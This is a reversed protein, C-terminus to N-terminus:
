ELTAPVPFEAMNPLRLGLWKSFIAATAQPTVTERRVGGSIGPGYVLLPVHTDYNYPTGHTTGTKFRDLPICYPKLLVYVDGSRETNFSRQVRSGIIDNAPFGAKLEARTYAHNVHPHKSLFEATAQAVEERSKGFASLVKPNFYIWPFSTADKDAMAEIWRPKKQGEKAATSSGLRATLHDEIAEQLAKVNVREAGRIGREKSVEVLPCVGHDATVAMIYEGKGVHSDLFGLLEAIVADSHLTVDLVEPSDPGWTHGILDNSSFSVVLLDPVEHKGLKEATACTRAIELMLDNGASSNALKEYYEKGPKAKGGTNSYRFALDQSGAATSKRMESVVPDLWDFYNIDPRCPVWDKGFWKNAGQLNGEDTSKNFAEVWSFTAAEPYYSSTVLHGDFWYAGSPNKGVPLIASRDKLSLGFVKSASSRSRLVDAVTEALLREPTPIEKPRSKSDKAAKPDPVTPFPSVLKYKDSFPSGVCNVMADKEFWANDIIGHRNGCTGSLMSSHGPGTTTTAYPYYCHTFWAGESQLRLFGGTGFLGRWKELYDGRMQDFVVLVALKVRPKDPEAAIAGPVPHHNNTYAMALGAVGALVCLFVILVVSSRMRVCPPQHNSNHSHCDTQPTKPLRVIPAVCSPSFAYSTKTFIPCPLSGSTSPSNALFVLMKPICEGNVRLAPSPM